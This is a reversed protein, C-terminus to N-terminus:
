PYRSRDAPQRTSPCQGGLWCERRRHTVNQVRDRRRV